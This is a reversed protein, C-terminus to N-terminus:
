DAEDADPLWGLERLFDEIEKLSSHFERRSAAGGLHFEHGNGPYRILRVQVSGKGIAEDVFAESTKIPVIADATGHFILTPPLPGALHHLPAISRLRERENANTRKAVFPIEFDVVPNFLMLADPHHDPNTEFVACGLALHGGSSGGAAAIRHPDIGLEMAHSRVWAMAARADDLSEFPTNKGGHRAKVRYDPTISVIGQSALKRAHREYQWPVGVEWGGGFFWVVCPRQDEPKWSGPLYVDLTLSHGDISRYVFHRPEASELGRLIWAVMAIVLFGALGAYIAYRGTERRPRPM